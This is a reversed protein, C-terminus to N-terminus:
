EKLQKYGLISDAKPGHAPAGLAKTLIDAEMTPDSDKEINITQLELQHEQVHKVRTAVHKLKGHNKGPNGATAVVAANDEWIITPQTQPFGFQALTSRIYIVEKIADSLAYLEAETTSLTVCKQTQSFWAIAAGLLKAVFGQTSRRTDPDDAYSADASAEAILDSLFTGIIEGQVATFKLGKERTSKLYRLIRKMSSVHKPGPDSMIKCHEKVAFSIDPRTCVAAYLASAVAARVDFHMGKYKKIQEADDQCCDAKSIVTGTAMPLKEGNCDAFGFRKLVKDIYDTQRLELTRAARDRIIEIGVFMKTEATHSGKFESDFEAEFWAVMDPTGVKLADDVWILVFIGPKFYLCPDVPSQQLGISVLWEHFTVNWLHPSEKLGYLGKKLKWVVNPDIGLGKPPVIYIPNNLLANLFATKVDSSSIEFDFQCAVACLIRFTTFKAVPAFTDGVDDSPQMFGLVVLRAKYRKEFVKYKLVIKSMMLKKGRPVDRRSIVEYVELDVLSQLEAQIAKRWNDADKGSLAQTMTKPDEVMLCLMDWAAESFCGKTICDGSSGLTDIIEGATSIFNLRDRTAASRLRPLDLNPQAHTTWPAEPPKVGVKPETDSDPVSVPEPDPEPEPELEPEPEPELLTTAGSIDASHSQSPRIDESHPPAGGADLVPKQALPMDFEHDDLMLPAGGAPQQPAIEAPKEGRKLRQWEDGVVKRMSQYDYSEGMAHKYEEHRRKSFEHFEHFRGQKGVDPPRSTLDADHLAPPGAQAVEVTAEDALDADGMHLPTDAALPTEILDDSLLTVIEPDPEPVTMPLEDFTCHRSIVYCQQEPLYIKWAKYGLALRVFRGKVTRPAYTGAPDHILVRAPCYFPRRMSIDPRRGYEEEYPTLGNPTSKSYTVNRSDCCNLFCDAYHEIPAGSDLMDCRTAQGIIRMWVEAPNQEHTEPASRHIEILLSECLTNFKGWYEPGGDCFIELPIGHKTCYSLLAKALTESTKGVLHQPVLFSSNRKVILNMVTGGQTSLPMVKTTDMAIAEGPEYERPPRGPDRYLHARQGKGEPCRDCPTEDGRTLAKAPFGDVLAQTKILYPDSPHSLRRHMDNKTLKGMAIMAIDPDDAPAQGVYVWVDLRMFRNRPGDPTLPVQEGSPCTLVNNKRDVYYDMENLQGESLLDTSTLNQFCKSGDLTVAAELIRVTLMGVKEPTASGAFGDTCDGFDGTRGSHIFLPNQVCSCSACSDIFFSARVWNRMDTPPSDTLVFTEDPPVGPLSQFAVLPDALDPAADTNTYALSLELDWPSDYVGKTYSAMYDTYHLTDIATNILNSNGQMKPVYLPNEDLTLLSVDSPLSLKQLLTEDGMIFRCQDRISVTVGSPLQITNVPSSAPANPVPPAIHLATDGGSSKGQQVLIEQEKAKGLAVYAKHREKQQKAKNKRAQRRESESQQKEKYKQVESPSARCDKQAHGLGGCKPCKHEESTHNKMGCHTCGTKHHALHISEKTNSFPKPFQKDIGDHLRVLTYRGSADSCSDVLARHANNHHLEMGTIIQEVLTHESMKDEGMGTQNLHTWENTRDIIYQDVEIRGAGKPLHTNHFRRTAQSRSKYAQKPNASEKVKQYIEYATLTSREDIPAERRARKLQQITALMNGTLSQTIYAGVRSQLDTRDRIQSSLFPGPEIVDQNLFRGQYNADQICRGVCHKDLADIITNEWTIFKDCSGDYKAGSYDGLSLTPLRRDALEAGAAEEAAAAAVVEAAAKATEATPANGAGPQQRLQEIEQQQHMMQQQMIENSRQMQQMQQMMAQMMHQVSQVESLDVTKDPSPYQDDGDYDTHHNTTGSM